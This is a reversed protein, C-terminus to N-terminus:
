AKPRWAAVAWIVAISLVIVLVSWMPYHPLALFNAIIVLGAIAVAAYRGWTTGFMLGLACLFGIVGLVLHIWGWTTTDFAYLYDTGAIYLEDGAIAVVGELVSMASALLLMVAAVISIGTAVSQRQFPEAPPADGTGTRHVM